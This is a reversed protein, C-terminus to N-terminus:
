PAGFRTLVHDRAIRYDSPSSTVSAVFARGFQEVRTAHDRLDFGDPLAFPRFSLKGRRVVPAPISTAAPLKRRASKSAIHHTFIAQERAFHQVTTASLAHFSAVADPEVLGATISRCLAASETDYVVAATGDILADAVAPATARLEAARIARLVTPVSDAFIGRNTRRLIDESADGLQELFGYGLRSAVRGALGYLRARDLGGMVQVIGLVAVVMWPYRFDCRRGLELYGAVRAHMSRNFRRLMAYADAALAQEEVLVAAYVDPPVMAITAEQRRVAAALQEFTLAQLDEGMVRFSPIGLASALASM